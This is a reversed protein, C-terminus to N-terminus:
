LPSSSPPFKVQFVYTEDFVPNCTKKKYKTQLYRREDPMLYIRCFSRQSVNTIPRRMSSYVKLSNKGIRLLHVCHLVAYHLTEPLM